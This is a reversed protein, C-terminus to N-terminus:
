DLAVTRIDKKEIRSVVENEFFVTVRGLQRDKGVVEYVYVYDWRNAHFPDQVLPTGMLYRVENKKMGASLKGINEEDLFNGQQIDPRHISCGSLLIAVVLSAMALRFIRLKSM